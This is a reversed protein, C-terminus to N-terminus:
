VDRVEMAKMVGKSNFWTIFWKDDKRFGLGRYSVAPVDKLFAQQQMHTFYEEAMDPAKHFFGNSFHIGLAVIKLDQEECFKNLRRWGMRLCRDGGMVEENPYKEIVKQGDSLKAIFRGIFM